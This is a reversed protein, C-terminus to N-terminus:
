LKNHVCWNYCLVAQKDHVRHSIRALHSDDTRGMSLLAAVAQPTTDLGLEGTM